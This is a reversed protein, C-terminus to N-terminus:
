NGIFWRSRQVYGNLRLHQFQHPVQSGFEARADHEDGVVQTHYSLNCVFDIDHVQSLDDLLPHYFIDEM